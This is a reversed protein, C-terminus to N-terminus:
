TSKILDLKGIASFEFVRFRTLENSNEALPFSSSRSVRPPFSSAPFEVIVWREKTQCHNTLIPLKSFAILVVKKVILINLRSKGSLFTKFLLVEGNEKRWGYRVIQTPYKPCKTPYTLHIACSNCATRLFGQKQLSTKRTDISFM